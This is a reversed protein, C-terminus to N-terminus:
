LEYELFKLGKKIDTEIDFINDHIPKYLFICYLISVMVLPVFLNNQKKFAIRIYFYALLAFTIIYIYKYYDKYKNYLEQENEKLYEITYIIIMGMQGIICLINLWNYDSNTNFSIAYNGKIIFTTITFFLLLCSHGSIGLVTDTISGRYKPFIRLLMAISIFVHGLFYIVRKTNIKKIYNTYLTALSGHSLVAYL